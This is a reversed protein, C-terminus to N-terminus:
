IHAVVEFTDIQPERELALAAFQTVAQRVQPTEGYAQADEKTEFIMVQVVEDTDHNLFWFGGKFGPPAMDKIGSLAERGWPDNPAYYGPTLKRVRIEAYV